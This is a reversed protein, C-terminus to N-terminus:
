VVVRQVLSPLVILALEARQLVRILVGRAPTAVARGSRTPPIGTDVATRAGPVGSRAAIAVTACGVRVAGRRLCRRRRLRGATAIMRGPRACEGALRGVRVAT